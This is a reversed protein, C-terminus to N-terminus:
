DGVVLLNNRSNGWIGYLSTGFLIQTTTWRKKKTGSEPTEGPPPEIPPEPPDSLTLTVPIIKMEPTGGQRTVTVTGSYSGAALSSVDAYVKLTFPATGSTADVTLWSQDVNANWNLTGGGTNKVSLTQCAPTTGVTSSFGLSAPSISLFNTSVHPLITLSVAITESAAMGATITVSGEYEGETLGDIEVGVNVTSQGAEPITGETAPLTLWSEETSATWNFVSNGTNNIAIPKMTGSANGQLEEFSLSAPNATMGLYGDIGYIDIQGALLSSVYLKNTKGMAIGLPTRLPHSANDIMGLFGGTNEYVMVKQLRSESVYVRSEDDVAIHMPMVLEGNDRDYGFKSYGRKFDGNMQLFQIRAGDIMTNSFQDLREQLDLVVLENGATDIALSVPHHFQGNGNGSEGLSSNYTGDSNYLKIASNTKDVVYILGSADIDIDNPLGFEDTGQGLNFLHNYSADYVEVNGQDRNGIYIRGGVDVALSTPKSLGSITHIHSGSQSFIRVLNSGTEAVYVRGDEDLTVITPKNVQVTIPALPAFAPIDASFSMGYVFVSFGAFLVFFLRMTKIEMIAKKM